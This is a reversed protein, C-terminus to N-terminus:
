SISKIAISVSLNSGYISQRSVNIGIYKNSTIGIQYQGLDMVIRLYFMIKCDRTLQFRTMDESMFIVYGRSSLIPFPIGLKSYSVYMLFSLFSKLCFILIHTHEANVTTIIAM